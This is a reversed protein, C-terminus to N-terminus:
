GQIEVPTYITKGSVVTALLQVTMVAGVFASQQITNEELGPLGTGPVSVMIYSVNTLEGCSLQMNIQCLRLLQPGAGNAMLMDYLAGQPVHDTGLSNSVVCLINDSNLYTSLTPPVTDTQTWSQNFVPKLSTRDFVVFWLANPVNPQPSYGQTNPRRGIVVCTNAKKMNSQLTMPVYAPPAANESM